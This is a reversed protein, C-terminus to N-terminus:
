HCQSTDITAAYWGVYNYICVCVTGSVGDVGSTDATYSRDVFVKSIILVVHLSTTRLYYVM